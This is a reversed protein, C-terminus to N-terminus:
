FSAPAPLEQLTARVVSTGIELREACKRVLREVQTDNYLNVTDRLINLINKGKIIKEISLTVRLSELKKLELGGLVHLELEKTIYVYNNSNSTDLKNM